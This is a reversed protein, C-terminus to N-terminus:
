LLYPYFIHVEKLIKNNVNEDGLNEVAFRSSVYDVYDSCFGSSSNTSLCKVFTTTKGVVEYRQLIKPFKIKSYVLSSSIQQTHHM